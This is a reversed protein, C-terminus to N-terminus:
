HILLIADVGYTLLAIIIGAVFVGLMIAPFARKVRLDLITAVLAGTWAGTGPLPIAVLLFLGPIAYKRVIRGKIHARKEIRDCFIRLKPFSRIWELVRRTFLMLPMVVALNGIMSAIFAAWVPLGLSVGLPIGGRLEVIPMMSVAMTALLEPIFGNIEFEM